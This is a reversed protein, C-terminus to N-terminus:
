SLSATGTQAVRQILERGIVLRQIQSTGEYIQYIKADRMLKECPYETNFGNGGFIQVGNTAAENATDAAFRKAMSAFYSSRTGKDVEAAARYTMIRALELNTAMDALMFLVGQHQAIPVGFTKREMAYKSSEDLARWALGLAGAAVGPRTQDFAGMAVKFGMGPAGLVNEKPVRVDEFTVTRTDSCRQGMNIEKRGVSIGATERDVVFATFAKGASTKPDKDSRALVFFWKAYGAGTIWAKSGNLVYEDGKKEATTRVGNVDSGAQPETVCYSAISPEDTLMGAYKKKQEDTGALLLPALALSPGMIALQIGSCGYSLAEAILASEVNSCNTGGYKEPVMPNMLGLSHAQRIMEWPFEMTRDYEAAKPAIVEKAFKLATAQFEREQENLEFSVSRHQFNLVQSGVVVFPTSCCADDEAIMTSATGTEQFRQLLQRGIVLRQVQSTGEYIQFIKADRMLKECPYETSFGNGGFIQVGNAAAENATDAAFRKAVSAFYSGPRGSDVYAASRYTMLRALELNTAMDALMFLVAQHQAIPTGFTKRELAYKSAEDLVRSALGNALAAVLPRTKDFTKMAVVFGKGVEGVINEEPVRVDEFTIGVTSSCRQGMNIEKRGRTLGPSDGEVVFATFAKSAPTKPDPDTRALVFFWSAHGGNTIWMKQGNIIWENGKKEARTKAGAVDSGAGPESVAYSVVLPEEVLRSLFRKKIDDNGALVLPSCALDNGLIATGMGSCGYAISESVIVNSVLDLDLGGVSEPLDLNMLGTEHAKKIVPWPYEMTRDYEAAVPIIEERAFKLATERLQRQEDNFDFNLGSSTSNARVNFASQALPRLHVVRRLM